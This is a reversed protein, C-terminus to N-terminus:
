RVIDRFMYAALAAIVIVSFVLVLLITTLKDKKPMLAWARAQKGTIFGILLGTGTGALVGLSLIMLFDLLTGTM